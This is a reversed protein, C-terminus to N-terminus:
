GPGDTVRVYRSAGPVSFWRRHAANWFVELWGCLTGRLDRDELWKGETHPLLHLAERGQTWNSGEM